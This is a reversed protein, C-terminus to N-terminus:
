PHTRNMPTDQAHHVPSSTANTATKVVGDHAGCGSQAMVRRGPSFAVLRLHVSITGRPSESNPKDKASAFIVETMLHLAINGGREIFDAGLHRSERLFEMLCLEDRRM